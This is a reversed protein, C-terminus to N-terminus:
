PDDMRPLHESNIRIPSAYLRLFRVHASNNQQIRTYGYIEYHLFYFSQPIPPVVCPVVSLRVNCSISEIPWFALQTVFFSIIAVKISYFIKNEGYFLIFFVSLLRDQKTGIWGKAGM